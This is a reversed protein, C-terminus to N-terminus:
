SADSFVTMVSRDGDVELIEVGRISRGSGDIRISKVMGRMKEDGPELQLQWEEPGGELSVKYFRVLTPLDGALTARISEVFAGIEPHDSLVLVRRQRGNDGEVTLRDRDVVMSEAKPRLTNKELRDPAIYTLTGSFQLPEKLMSLYRREVFRAKAVKVQGLDLM